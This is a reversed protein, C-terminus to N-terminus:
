RWKAQLVTEIVEMEEETERIQKEARKIKGENEFLVESGDGYYNSPNDRRDLRDEEYDHQLEV